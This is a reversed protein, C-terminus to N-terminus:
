SCKRAARGRRHRRRHFFRQLFSQLFSFLFWTGAATLLWAFGAIPLVLASSYRPMLQWCTLAFILLGISGAATGAAEAGTTAIGCEEGPKGKAERRERVHKETLTASASFIAPFALFLGGAAPGWLRAVLAAGVTVLGGFVFRWAYEGPTTEKFKGPEVAITM